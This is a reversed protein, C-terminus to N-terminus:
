RPEASDVVKVTDGSQLLQNGRLAIRTDATLTNQIVVRGASDEVVDVRQRRARNERDIVFVSRGGDAHVLVAERPLSLGERPGENLIVATVSTGPFLLGMPDDATIRVLFARAQIDSVPVLAAVRGDLSAEPSSDPRIQVDTGATMRHFHEQPVNVDIWVAETAVLRFVPSGRNVWEGTETMREAIVGGFPSPLEHRRAQEAILQEQAESANLAAATIAMASKRSALETAPIFNDNRLRTAEHVLRVAEEAAARAEATAAQALALEREALATDLRMLTDGQGVSDGADVLVEAVLGDMRSSLMAQRRPTVTGSLELADRIAAPEPTVVSVEVDAAIASLAIMCLCVTLLPATLGQRTFLSRGKEM